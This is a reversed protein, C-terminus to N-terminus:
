VEANPDQILSIYFQMQRWALIHDGTLMNNSELVFEKNAMKLCQVCLHLHVLHPRKQCENKIYFIFCSWM